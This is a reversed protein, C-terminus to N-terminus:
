SPENDSRRYRYRAYNATSEVLTELYILTKQTRGQLLLREGESFTHAPLVVSEAQETALIAPLLFAPAAASRSSGRFVTAVEPSYGLCEIGVRPVTGSKDMILWRTAGLSWQRDGDQLAVLDGIRAQSTEGKALELSFSAAGQEYIRWVATPPLNEKKPKKAEVQKASPSGAPTRSWPNGTAVKSDHSRGAQYVAREGTLPNLQHDEGSSRGSAAQDLALFANVTGTAM